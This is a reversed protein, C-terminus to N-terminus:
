GGFLVPRVEQKLGRAAIYTDPQSPTDMSHVHLIISDCSAECNNRHHLRDGPGTIDPSGSNSRSQAKAHQLTRNSVRRRRMEEVAFM